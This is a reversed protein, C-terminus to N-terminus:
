TNFKSKLKFYYYEMILIQKVTFDNEDKVYNRKIGEALNTPHIAGVLEIMKLYEEVLNSKDNSERLCKFFAGRTNVETSWNNTFTGNDIEEQISKPYKWKNKQLDIKEINYALEHFLNSEMEIFLQKDNKDFILNSPEEDSILQSILEDLSNNFNYKIFKEFSNNVKIVLQKKSTPLCNLYDNKGSNETCSLTLLFTFIVISILTTKNM